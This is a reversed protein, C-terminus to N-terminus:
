KALRELLGRNAEIINKVKADLDVDAMMAKIEDLIVVFRPLQEEPVADVAKHAKERLENTSMIRCLYLIGDVAPAPKLGL